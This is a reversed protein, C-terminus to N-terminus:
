LGLFKFGLEFDFMFLKFCKLLLELDLLLSEASVLIQHSKWRFLFLIHDLTTVARFEKQRLGVQLLVVLSMMRLCIEEGLKILIMGICRLM